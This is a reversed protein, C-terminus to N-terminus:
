NKYGKPFLYDNVGRQMIYIDRWYQEIFFTTVISSSIENSLGFEDRLENVLWLVVVKGSSGVGSDIYRLVNSCFSEFSAITRSSSIVGNRTNIKYYHDHYMVVMESMIGMFNFETVDDLQM